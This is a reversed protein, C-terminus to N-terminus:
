QAPEAIAVHCFTLAAIGNAGRLVRGPQWHRSRLYTIHQATSPARLRLGLTNGTVTAEVVQGREDGLFFDAALQNDWVVPQDFTLVVHDRTKTLYKAHLLDPATISRDTAVDYVHRELLPGLLRPFQAWGALPYHCGGPPEIGLTSMVTLHSFSRSLSRQVERLMDDSGDRGMSCAHPWIQFVCRHQVNPYDRQWGAAMAVFDDRYTEWGFRGSPGDAGQDNEGQHWLVARIGHTLKAARARWLLRGYITRVDEPDAVSRQHQDLRSGGVAGNLMCVPVRQSAVLQQGLLMAWYGVQLEGDRARVVANGWKRTRAAQPDGGAFGFTRVWESQLPPNQEGVDTAEANSQGDILFADGCVLDDATFVIGEQDGTKSVLEARYQVLGPKLLVALDYRRDAALPAQREAFPKGDAFVRLLVTKAAVPLTGRCVLTGVGRDDRAFFQHDEPREDDGWPQQVWADHAPETVQIVVARSVPGGGNDVTVTIALSGSAMARTLVLRDQESHQVVAVGELRWSYRLTAASRQQLAALNTIVPALTLPQRGDWRPPATFTVEPDPVHERITVPVDLTRTEDPYVAVFRLAMAQDGAVRGAALDCTLQDVAITTEAGDRVLRWSVKQAGGAKATVTAVEGERLLLVPVSTSCEDGAAVLSGVLTQLPKQNEYELRIWAASRAVNSIRVEDLDGRFGHGHWGGLDFRVAKPLDLRPTSAGDLVGNVYVRSDDREYTHVVHTWQQLALPSKGEVDAFYCQIAVHPPSLLNMMVKGPRQEQGWALVTTNTREARFWAQTSSANAGQPFTTIGDGGFIGSDGSLHRADGIMGRVTTTGQNQAQVTGVADGLEAGLHLVSCYGNHAGFVARGNSTAAAESNGWHLHLPQRAMGVLRPVLVWVSATGLDADWHEIEHPLPAGAADTCRLDEGHPKAQAFDFLGRQLRVLVPFNEVVADDPLDAGDKTTLLWCTGHHRWPKDITGGQTLDPVPQQAIAATIGTVAAGLALPLWAVFLSLAPTPM